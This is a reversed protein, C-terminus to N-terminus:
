MKIRIELLLYIIYNYYKLLFILQILVPVQRVSPQILGYKRMIKEHSGM